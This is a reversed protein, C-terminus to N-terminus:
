LNFLDSGDGWSIFIGLSFPFSIFYSFCLIFSSCLHQLNFFPLVWSASKHVMKRPCPVQDLPYIWSPCWNYRGIFWDSDSWQTYNYEFSLLIKQLQLLTENNIEVTHIWDEDGGWNRNAPLWGKFFLRLHPDPVRLVM